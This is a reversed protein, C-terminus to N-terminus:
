RAALVAIVALANFSAHTLICPLIRRTRAYIVALVVGTIALGVFAEWEAHAAAFLLGDVAVSAVLSATGRASTLVARLGDLLVGRFLLEEFIPAGICTMLALILFDHGTSGSFIKTSNGKYNSYLHAVSYLVDVVAQLMLGVVVFLVDSARVGFASRPLLGYTRSALATALGFGAWLGVLAAAIFWWPPNALASLATISRPDHTISRALVDALVGLVQGAAFGLAVIAVIAVGNGRSLRAGSLDHAIM